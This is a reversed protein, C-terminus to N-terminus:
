LLFRISREGGRAVRGVRGGGTGEESSRAREATCLHPQKDVDAHKADRVDDLGSGVKLAIRLYLHTPCGGHRTKAHLSPLERAGRETGHACTARCASAGAIGEMAVVPQREQQQRAGSPRNPKQQHILPFRSTQHTGCQEVSARSSGAGRASACARLAHASDFCCVFAV